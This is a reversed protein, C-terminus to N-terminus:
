SEKLLLVDFNRSLSGPNCILILGFRLNISEPKTKRYTAQEHCRSTIQRPINLAGSVKRWLPKRASEKERAGRGRRLLFRSAGGGSFAAGSCGAFVVHLSQHGVETSGDM